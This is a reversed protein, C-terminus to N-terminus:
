NLKIRNRWYAEFRKRQEAKDDACAVFDHDSSQKHRCKSPMKYFSQWAELKEGRYVRNQASWNDNISTSDYSPNTIVDKAEQGQYNDSSGSRVPSVCHKRMIQFIERDRDNLYNGEAVGYGKAFRQQIREKEAKLAACHQSSYQEDAVTFFSTLLFGILLYKM